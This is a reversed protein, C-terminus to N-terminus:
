GVIVVAEGGFPPDLILGLEVTVARRTTVHEGAGGPVRRQGHRRLREGTTGM